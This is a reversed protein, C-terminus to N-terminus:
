VGSMVPILILQNLSSGALLLYGFEIHKEVNFHVSLRQLNHLTFGCVIALRATATRTSQPM